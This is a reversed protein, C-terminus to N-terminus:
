KTEGSVATPAWGASLRRAATLRRKIERKAYRTYVDRMQWQGGVGTRVVFFTSTQRKANCWLEKYDNDGPLFDFETCGEAIASQIAMARLTNGPSHRTLRAHAAFSGSYYFIKTGYRYCYLIALPGDAHMLWHLRLHGTDLLAHAVRKHFGFYGHNQYRSTRNQAAWRETHMERLADLIADVQAHTAATEFRAGEDTLLIRLSRKLNHRFKSSLRVIFEDWTSPLTAYACVAATERMSELESSQDAVAQGFSEHDIVDTLHLRDWTQDQQLLHLFLRRAHVPDVKPDIIFDLYDPSVLEGSGIFRIERVGNPAHRLYLPALGVISKGDRLALLKLSRNSVGACFQTWWSYAYEFTLFASSLGSRALLANWTDGLTAFERETICDVTLADVVRMLM